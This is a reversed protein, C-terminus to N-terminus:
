EKLILEKKSDSGKRFVIRLIINQWLGFGYAILMEFATVISLLGVRISRNRM